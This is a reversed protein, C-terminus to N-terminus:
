LAGRLTCITLGLEQALAAIRLRATGYIHGDFTLPSSSPGHTPSRRRRLASRSLRPRNRCSPRYYQRSGSSQARLKAYRAAFSPRLRAGQQSASTQHGAVRRHPIEVCSPGPDRALAGAVLTELNRGSSSKRSRVKEQACCWWTLDGEIRVGVEGHGLGVLLADRSRGINLGVEVEDLGEELLVAM